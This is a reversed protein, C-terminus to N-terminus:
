AVLSITNGEEQIIERIISQKVIETDKLHCEISSIYFGKDKLNNILFPINNKILLMGEEKTILFRGGIEKGKISLDARLPGLNSLELLFTIRFLNKDIRKRTNGDKEEQPLHILLQGLTFLGDPFQM